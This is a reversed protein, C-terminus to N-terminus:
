VVGSEMIAKLEAQSAPDSGQLQAVRQKWLLNVLEAAIYQAMDLDGGDGMNGFIQQMIDQGKTIQEDDMHLVYGGALTYDNWEVMKFVM